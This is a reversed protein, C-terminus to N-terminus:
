IERHWSFHVLNMKIVKAKAKLSVGLLLGAEFDNHTYSSSPLKEKSLFNFNSSNIPKDISNADVFHRHAQWSGFSNVTRQDRNMGVAPSLTLIFALISFGHLASVLPTPDGAEGFGTLIQFSLVMVEGELLRVKAILGALGQWHSGLSSM